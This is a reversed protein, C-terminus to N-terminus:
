YWVRRSVTLTSLSAPKEDNWAEEGLVHENKELETTEGNYHGKDDNESQLFNIVESHELSGNELNSKEKDVVEAPSEQLDTWHVNMDGPKM